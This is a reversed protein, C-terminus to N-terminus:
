HTSWRISVNDSDGLMRIRFGTAVKNEIVLPGVERGAMAHIIELSISYNADPMAEFTVDVFRDTSRFFANPSELPGREDYLTVSNLNAATDNAPIVVRLLALAEAPIAEGIVVLYSGDVCLLYVWLTVAVGTANVPVAVINLADVIAVRIEDIYALSQATGPVGIASLDLYRSAAHKTFVFGDIVYKNRLICTGARVRGLADKLFTTRNALQKAQLNSIGESGGQVPDEEEIQYIGAEWQSVEALNAM